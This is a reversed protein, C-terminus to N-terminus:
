KSKQIFRYLIFLGIISLSGVYFSTTMDMQANSSNIKVHEIPERKEDPNEIMAIYSTLTKDQIPKIVIPVQEHNLETKYKNTNDIDDLTNQVTEFGEIMENVIMIENENPSERKKPINDIIKYNAEM